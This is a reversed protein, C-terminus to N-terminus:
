PPYPEAPLLIRRRTRLRAHCVENVDSGAGLTVKRENEGVDVRLMGVGGLFPISTKLLCDEAEFLLWVSTRGCTLISSKPMQQKSVLRIDITDDEANYLPALLHVNQVYPM